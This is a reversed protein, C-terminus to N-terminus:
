FRQTMQNVLDVGFDPVDNLLLPWGELLQVDEVVCAAFHALVLRLKSGTMTNGYVYRAVGGFDAIFASSFMTWNALVHVLRASALEMLPIIAYRDAFVWLRAHGLFVPEFSPTSSPLDPWLSSTEQEPHFGHGRIMFSQILERKKKIPTIEPHGPCGGPIQDMKRKSSSGTPRSQMQHKCNAWQCPNSLWSTTSTKYGALSYPLKMSNSKDKEDPVALFSDFDFNELVDGAAVTTFDFLSTVEAVEEVRPKKAVLEESSKDGSKATPDPIDPLSDTVVVPSFKVYSGTYIFQAFRMFIDEQVDDWVVYGEVAEKMQGNIMANFPPSLCGLIGKHILFERM